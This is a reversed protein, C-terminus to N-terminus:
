NRIINTICYSLVTPLSRATDSRIVATDLLAVFQRSGAVCLRVRFSYQERCSWYVYDYYVYDPDILILWSWYDPDIFMIMKATFM